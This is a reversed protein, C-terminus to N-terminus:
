RVAIKTFTLSDNGTSFGKLSKSTNNKKCGFLKSFYEECRRWVQLLDLVLVLLRKWFCETFHLYLRFEAFRLVFKLYAKCIGLLSLWRFLVGEIASGPGLRLIIVLRSFWYVNIKVHNQRWGAGNAYKCVAAAAAFEIFSQLKISAPSTSPMLHWNDTDLAQHWTTMPFQQTACFYWSIEVTSLHPM